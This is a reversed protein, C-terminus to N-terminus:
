RRGPTLNWSPVGSVAAATRALMSRTKDGAVLPPLGQGSYGM